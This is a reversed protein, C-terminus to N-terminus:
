DDCACHSYADRVTANTLEKRLLDPVIEGSVAPPAFGCPGRQRM